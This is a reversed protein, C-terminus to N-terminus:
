SAAAAALSPLDQTLMGRRLDQSEPGNWIEEFSKQNLNGLVLQDGGGMCCPYVNGDAQVKV